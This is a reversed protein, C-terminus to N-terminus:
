RTLGPSSTSNSSRRMKGRSLKGLLPYDNKVRSRSPPATRIVGQTHLFPRHRYATTSQSGNVLPQTSHRRPKSVDRLSHRSLSRWFGGPHLARAGDKSFGLQRGTLHREVGGEDRFRFSASPNEIQIAGNRQGPKRRFSM